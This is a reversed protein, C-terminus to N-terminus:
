LSRSECKENISLGDDSYLFRAGALAGADAANQLENHAVFLHGLDVALAALFIFLFICIGVLVITAGDQEKIIKANILKKMKHCENQIIRM